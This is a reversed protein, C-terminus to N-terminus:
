GQPTPFGRHTCDTDKTRRARWVTAAAFCCGQGGSWTPLSSVLHVIRDALLEPTAPARAAALRHDLMTRAWPSPSTFSAASMSTTPPAADEAGPAAARHLHHLLLPDGLMRRTTAAPSALSTGLVARCRPGSERARAHPRGSREQLPRSRCARLQLGTRWSEAFSRDYRPPARTRAPIATAQILAQISRPPAREPSTYHIGRLTCATRWRSRWEIRASM